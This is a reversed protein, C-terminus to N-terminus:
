EDTGSTDSYKSYSYKKPYSYSYKSHSYSYKRYDTGYGYTTRYGYGYHLHSMPVCNFICGAIKVDKQHLATVANLVQGRQAYDQKVVYLVCDAYRCLSATDATAELPATDIVVYDYEATLAELIRRMEKPDITYYRKDTNRGSIFSLKTDKVTRICDQISLEPDKIFDMLGTGVGRDGLFRAVSQSRLDADLLLVKHGDRVLAKALNIAVTTKGEGSLTSTVLITKKEPSNLIKKVKVRLGRLSEGMNSDSEGTILLNSGSRRRKQTVKPLTVLIPANITSKLEEATQLTRTLLSVLLLLGLGLALGIICGSVIADTGSFTNYPSTPVNPAAMVKIQPNDVMYMAVQPYCEIIACLYDYADQPNSSQVSLILMNSDAVAQATATGNIYGSDLHTVVLDRMMDTAVLQPFTAALQQAAYQDYYAGTSFIDGANYGSDVTFIARSEYMPVFSRKSRFYSLAGFLLVLVLILLWLKSFYSKFRVLLGMVNISDKEKADM